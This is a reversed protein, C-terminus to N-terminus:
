DNLLAADHDAPYFRLRKFRNTRPTNIRISSTRRKTRPGQRSERAKTLQGSCPQGNARFVARM